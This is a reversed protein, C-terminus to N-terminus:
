NVEHWYIVKDHGRYTGFFASARPDYLDNQKDGDFNWYWKLWNPVDLPATSQGRYRNPAAVLSQWLLDFRGQVFKAGVLTGTGNSRTVRQTNELAPSYVVGTAPLAPTTVTTCSDLSNVAWQTGSWYEATVPMRLSDTEPGYANELMIRGHRYHQTSVQKADCSDSIYCVDTTGANMDPSAIKVGDKDVMQLGIAMATYPGDIASGLLRTFSIDSNVAQIGKDDKDWSLATLGKIRAQYDAGANSNEGVLLAKGSGFDGYYNQTTVGSLNRARIKMMLSVPEDMYSFPAAGKNCAALMSEEYVKFDNPYFRGVPKSEAASINIKEGLYGNPPTATLTFVGVEGISQEVGNLNDAKAKHDYTKLGLEGLVGHEPQKLTHGLTIGEQVYNPTTSNNCYDTDGDTEWAMGQISTNFTEGSIKFKPCTNNGVTCVTEPKICLGVPYRVTNDSGEMVLGEDDEGAPATYKAHIAIKGADPYNLEFEAKGEDNFTLSLPTPNLSSTGINDGNVSAPSGSTIEAPTPSIYESWFNVDRTTSTSGFAPVCQTSAHSKKVASIEINKQPKNALYNDINVIFGAEAFYLSCATNDVLNGDIYCRYPGTPSTTGLGITTSKGEGHWLLTDTEGTFTVDSYKDTGKILEVSSTVSSLTSCDDNACSKITITKATCSLAGSTFQIRYHNTAPVEHPAEFAFYGVNEIMHRREDDFQQDEDVAFSLTNNFKDTRCRRLWGGDGGERSNKNAITYPLSPYINQLGNTYKCQQSLDGSRDNNKAYGFEYKKNKGDILMVGSGLGAVYGLTEHSNISGSVESGEIAIDFGSGSDDVDDIVATIFRNNTRSLTQGLMAPKAGFSHKFTVSEYGEEPGSFNKGQYKKTSVKGAQLAKGKELFRYGTEMVFYDFEPMAKSTTNNNPPNEVTIIAGTSSSSSVRLTSPGDNNANVGDITPMVMIMPASAYSKDFTFSASGNTGLEVRGFEFQPFPCTLYASEPVKTLSSASPRQWYLHYGEGGTAEHFRMEIKHAGKELSINGTECPWGCQAHRDYFGVVVQDDILLEIADDGDIGFTYKGTEPANIYGEFIGTYYDGQSAHPNISVGYGEVRSVISEGLQEQTNKVTAILENFEDHDAPSTEVGPQWNRADYTRYTIGSVNNQEAPCQAPISPYVPEINCDPVVDIRSANNDFDVWGEDAISIYDSTIAGEVRAGDSFILKGESVIHGRLYSDTALDIDSYGYILFLESGYSLLSNDLVYHNKVFFSVTGDSPFKVEVDDSIQLDEIWYQGPALDLTGDQVNLSKIKYIGDNDNASFRLTHYYRNSSISAYEGEPVNIIYNEANSPGINQNSSSTCRAFPIRDDPLEASYYGARCEKPRGNRHVCASRQYDFVSHSPLKRNSPPNYLKSGSHLIVQGRSTYSNVGEIFTDSWDAMVTPSLLFLVLLVFSRVLKFINIHKQNVIM